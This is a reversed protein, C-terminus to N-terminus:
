CMPYSSNCDISFSVLPSDFITSAQPLYRDHQWLEALV